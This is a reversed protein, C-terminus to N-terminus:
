WPRSDLIGKSWAALAVSPHPRVTDRVEIMNALYGKFGKDKLVRLPLKKSAIEAANRPRSEGPVRFNPVTQFPSPLRYLISSCVFLSATCRLVVSSFRTCLLTSTCMRSVPGPGRPTHCSSLYDKHIMGINKTSGRLKSERYRTKKDHNRRPPVCSARRRIGSCWWPGM